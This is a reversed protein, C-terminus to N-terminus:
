FYKVVVTIVIINKIAGREKIRELAHPHFVIAM